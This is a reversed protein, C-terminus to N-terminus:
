STEGGGDAAEQEAEALAEDSKAIEAAAALAARDAAAAVEAKYQEATLIRTRTITFAMMRGTSDDGLVVVYEGEHYEETVRRAEGIIQAFDSVFGRLPLMFKHWGVEFIAVACRKSKEEQM